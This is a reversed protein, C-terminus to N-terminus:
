VISVYLLFLLSDLLRRLIATRRRYSYLLFSFGDNGLTM